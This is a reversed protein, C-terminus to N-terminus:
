PAEQSEALAQDLRGAHRALRSEADSRSLNARAMTIATKVSGGAQELLARASPRDLGLITAVIRIARDLLKDNTARVDVMLNEYVRGMSVMLTTSITNLAMKTATGAKMRTSGTLVEPGTPIVILHDLDPPPEVPACTLLALLPRPAQRAAHQLAGLVCPTTGGSTIGLLTDDPALQLDDLARVCGLPDDELGESSRRLAADGGAIIGVIRGPDLQFTPPAESADLVGLRGSTGAGVYVLRGGRRMRPAVSEIFEVLAPRADALADLVHRDEQQILGVCEDISCTHLSMTRPNRQETAIHTRDPPLDAM